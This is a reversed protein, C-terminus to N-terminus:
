TTPPTAPRVLADAEERDKSESEQLIRLQDPTYLALLRIRRTALKLKDKWLPVAPELSGLDSYLRRAKLCQEKSEYDPALDISMGALGAAVALGLVSRKLWQKMHIRKALFGCPSSM